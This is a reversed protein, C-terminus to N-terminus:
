VCPVEEAKYQWHLKSQKKAPMPAFNSVTRKSDMTPTLNRSPESPDAVPMLQRLVAMKEDEVIKIESASATQQLTNTLDSKRHQTMQTM